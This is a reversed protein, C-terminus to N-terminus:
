QVPKAGYRQSWFRYAEPGNTIYKAVLNQNSQEDRVIFQVEAFGETCWRFRTKPQPTATAALERLAAEDDPAAVFLLYRNDEGGVLVSIGTTRLTLTDDLGTAYQDRTQSTATSSFMKKALENDHCNLPISTPNAQSPTSGAASAGNPSDGGQGTPSDATQAPAAPDPVTQAPPAADATQQAPATGAGNSASGHMSMGIAVALIVAGILVLGIVLPRNNRGEPSTGPDQM